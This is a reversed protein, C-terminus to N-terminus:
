KLDQLPEYGVSKRLEASQVCGQMQSVISLPVVSSILCWLTACGTDDGHEVDKDWGM